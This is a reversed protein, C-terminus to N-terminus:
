LISSLLWVLGLLAAAIPAAIVVVSLLSWFFFRTRDGWTIRDVPEDLLLRRRASGVTEALLNDTFPEGYLNYTKLGRMFARYTKRPALLLGIAHADLNLIWAPYHRGCGSAIEWAGIEAEGVWNAPYETLVHHLDHYRVAVVRAKTNPFYFAIPGAKLKVWKATYGGGDFGFRDFYIDRAEYLTLSPDYYTSIPNQMAIVM